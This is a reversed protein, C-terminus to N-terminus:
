ITHIITNYCEMHNSLIDLRLTLTHEEIHVELLPIHFKGFVSIEMRQQDELSKNETFEASLPLLM